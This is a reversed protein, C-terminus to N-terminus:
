LPQQVSYLRLLLRALKAQSAELKDNLAHQYKTWVDRSVANYRKSGKHEAINACPSAPSLSADYDFDPFSLFFSGLPTQTEVASIGASPM